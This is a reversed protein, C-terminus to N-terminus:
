KLEKGGPVSKWDELFQRLGTDTLPHRFLQEMIEFRMTCVDAGAIASELVHLPHRIAATIIKTKYGYNQYISKIQRVLEMGEHSVSDLRGVFPSVYAAGAKAALLAQLPSFVLTFNVKIGKGALIKTAKVGEPTSPIKIVINKAYQILREAQRVMGEAELSVVEVSVPGPCIKVINKILEEFTTKEKSVHTPNTTVGDLIGWGMAIEIEKLNATDIFLEM